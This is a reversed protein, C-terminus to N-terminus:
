KDYISYCKKMESIATNKENLPMKQSNKLYGHLLYFNEDIYCIFIRIDSIRLEYLKMKGFTDIKRLTRAKYATNIKMGHFSLQDMVMQIDIYHQHKMVREFFEKFPARGSKSEYLLVQYKREPDM